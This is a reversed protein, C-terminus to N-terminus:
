SSSEGTMIAQKHALNFAQFHAIDCYTVIWFSSIPSNVLPRQLNSKKAFWKECVLRSPSPAQIKLAQVKLIHNSRQALHACTPISHIQNAYFM